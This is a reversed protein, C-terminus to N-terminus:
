PKFHSDFFWVIQVGDWFFRVETVKREVPAKAIEVPPTAEPAPPAEPEQEVVAKPLEDEPTTPQEVVITRSQEVSGTARWALFVALVIAAASAAVWWWRRVLHLRRARPAEEGIQALVWGRREALAPGPDKAPVLLERGKRGLRVSWLEEQCDDCQQLHASLWRTEEPSLAGDLFDEFLAEAQQCDSPTDTM